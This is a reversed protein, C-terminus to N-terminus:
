SFPWYYSYLSFLGLSCFIYFLLHLCVVVVVVVAVLVPRLERDLRLIKLATEQLFEGPFSGKCVKDLQAMYEFISKM